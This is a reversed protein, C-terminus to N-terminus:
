ATRMVTWNYQPYKKRLEELTPKDEYALRRVLEYNKMLIESIYNETLFFLHSLTVLCDDYRRRELEAHFYYRYAMAEDREDSFHNRKIKEGSRDPISSSVLNDYLKNKGLM